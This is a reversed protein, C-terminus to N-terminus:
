LITLRSFITYSSTSFFYTPTHGVARNRYSEAPKKSPYVGGKTSFSLFGKLPSFSFFTRSLASSCSSFIVFVLFFTVKIIGMAGDCILMEKGIKERFKMRERGESNASQTVAIKM